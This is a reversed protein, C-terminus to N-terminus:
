TETWEQMLVDVAVLGYKHVFLPNIEVEAITQARNAAAAAFGAIKRAAEELDAGPKGRFGSILSAVRLGRMASAIEETDAPLLLTAADNILEALVGGAGITMALGFQPDSRISLILEAVPENEMAEVLFRDTVALPDHAEVSARMADVAEKVAGASQLGIAVAGAETKHTLRPGLMKLVVPYGIEEAAAPTDDGSAVRGAPVPIGMEAVRRKGEAEDLLRSDAGNVAPLLPRRDGAFVRNRRENWLVGARMAGLAEHLGQMPAVGLSILTERTEADLNEPLTSCIAAPLGNSRAAEVFAKADAQYYPKSEDLGSAPYDQVLVTADAGAQAMARDFVPATREPQGWIPTTYDLPNSVTAVPPLLGALEEAANASHAPLELGIKAAHDAMMAAGGGSCTFGVLRRGLPAGSVCLFKLTELLEAPSEVRVVGCREFLANHLDDDGSLSGTHSVALSAGTRSSGTKLAVVPVGLGAAKLCAREFERADRLGEIHLGIARVAPNGALHDIFDEVALVAQNGGSVMHTLPVSRQSMTLDSSLMGSQTIIAAGWGPTAGGHAFPWLAVRDLYNIIGYCNPGVLALDGAAEVLRRELEAGETGSERFGASYCVIGGAGMAALAATAEVAAAAPVALYAADPSDPLAALDPMCPYGGLTERRPNVAWIQGRYGAREAERIAVEADRGGLFAIHRPVLLRDLNARREPTM